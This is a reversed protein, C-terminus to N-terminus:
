GSIPSTLTIMKTSSVNGSANAAFLKKNKAATEFRAKAETLDKKAVIDAIDRLRDYQAKAANFEADVTNKQTLINVQTGADVQQEIVALVQGASVSQGVTTRISVIKGTQPSQIVAMGKPSPVITGLVETSQNFNGVVVKQTLINFLFQTEKEVIFTNSPGSSTGAKKAGHDDDGHASLYNTTATPFLLLFIATTVVVRRNPRKMLFFMVAMGALLSILGIFWNSSYWHAHAAELSPQPAEKGTEVDKILLLDAGLLSNLSVSINYVKKEPFTGKIEFVGTDVKSVTLKLDANGSVTAKLENANVPANTLVDTVFLRFVGEKGVPITKYKILLEYKDSSAESSFYASTSAPAKAANDHGEHAFLTMPILLLFLLYKIM